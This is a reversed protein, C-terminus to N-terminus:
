EVKIRCFSHEFSRPMRASIQAAELQPRRNEEFFKLEGRFFFNTVLKESRFKSCDTWPISHNLVM